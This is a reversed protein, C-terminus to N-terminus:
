VVHQGKPSWIWRQFRTRKQPVNTLESQRITPILLNVMYQLEKNKKRTVMKGVCVRLNITEETM